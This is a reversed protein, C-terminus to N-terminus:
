TGDKYYKGLRADQYGKFFGTAYDNFIFNPQVHEEELCNQPSRIIQDQYDNWGDDYGANWSANHLYQKVARVDEPDVEAVVNITVAEFEDHRKM